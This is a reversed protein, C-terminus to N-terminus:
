PTGNNRLKRMAKAEIYIKNQSGYVIDCKKGSNPYKVELEINNFDNDLIKM